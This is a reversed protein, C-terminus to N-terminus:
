DIAPLYERQNESTRLILFPGSAQFPNLPHQPYLRFFTQLFIFVVNNWIVPWYYFLSNFIDSPSKGFKKARIEFVFHRRCRLIYSFDQIYIYLFVLTEIINRKSDDWYDFLYHSRKISQMWHIIELCTQHLKRKMQMKLNTMWAHKQWIFALKNFSNHDRIVSIFNM